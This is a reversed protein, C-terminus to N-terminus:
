REQTLINTLAINDDRALFALVNDAGAAAVGETGVAAGVAM